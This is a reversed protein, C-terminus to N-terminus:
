KAGKKSTVYHLCTNLLWYPLSPHDYSELPLCPQDHIYFLPLPPEIKSKPSSPVLFFNGSKKAVCEEKTIKRLYHKDTFAVFSKHLPREEILHYVYDKIPLLPYDVWQDILKKCHLTVQKASLEFPCEGLSLQLTPPQLFTAHDYLLAGEYLHKLSSLRPASLWYADLPYTYSITTTDQTISCPLSSIDLNHLATLLDFLPFLYLGNM